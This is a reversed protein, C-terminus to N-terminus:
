GGEILVLAFNGPHDEAETRAADVFAKGSPSDPKMVGIGALPAAIVMAAWLLMLLAATLVYRFNFRKATM